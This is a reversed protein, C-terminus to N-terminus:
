SSKDGRYCGEFKEEVNAWSMIYDAIRDLPVVQRVAGLRIAQEPMGFVVCSKEDQAITYAGAQKMAHLGRAGDNGMGTLIIGLAEPGAVRAASEFLVDVSPRHRNVLEDEYVRVAYGGGARMVAMHYGGPAVLAVGPKLRDGSRAETVELDCQNHLREAFSATFKPPMHQVIAIGPTNRPLKALIETIAQTGGASAGIVILGDRCKQMSSFMQPLIPQVAPAAVAPRLHAGAAARVKARIEEMLEHSMGERVGGYPKAVFDVAGLELARLTAVAGKETHSSVMVVPLPHLRMLKELFTIGDMGPMEVDLTLVDPKLSKIKERAILPNPATGVVHIDQDQQLVFTLLQRMLASDDIILVKIKRQDSM